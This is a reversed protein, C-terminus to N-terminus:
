LEDQERITFTLFDIIHFQGDAYFSRNAIELIEEPPLSTIIRENKLGPLNDRGRLGSVEYPPIMPHYLIINGFPDEYQIQNESISFFANNRLNRLIFGGDECKTIKIDNVYESFEKM